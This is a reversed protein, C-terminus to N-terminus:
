KTLMIGMMAVSAIYVIKCHVSQSFFDKMSIDLSDDSLCQM